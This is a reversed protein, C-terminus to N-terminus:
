ATRAATAGPAPNRGFWADVSYRGAGHAALALFGGAIALNKMLMIFQTQDAINGHFLVGSILSFAALGLAAWKTWAGFLVALGSLVEAAIVLPLLGGPVGMAEMYGQTAAYGPIKGLGSVIFILSLGLRGFLTALHTM